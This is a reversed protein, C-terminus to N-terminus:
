IVGRAKIGKVWDVFVIADLHIWGTCYGSLHGASILFQWDGQDVRYMVVGVYQRQEIRKLTLVADTVQIWWGNLPLKTKGNRRKVEICWPYEVLDGGGERTQSLNRELNIGLRKQLWEAADREGQAGKRRANPMPKGGLLEPSRKVMDLCKLCTFDDSFLIPRLNTETQGCISGSFMVGIRTDRKHTKRIIREM